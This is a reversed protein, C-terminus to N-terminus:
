TSEQVYIGVAYIDFMRGKLNLDGNTEVSSTLWLKIDEYCCYSRRLIGIYYLLKSMYALSTITEHYNARM